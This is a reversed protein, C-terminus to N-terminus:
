RRSNRQGDGIAIGAIGSIDEKGHSSKVVDQYKNCAFDDVSISSYLTSLERKNGTKYATLLRLFLDSDFAIVQDSPLGIAKKSLGSGVYCTDNAISYLVLKVPEDGWSRVIVNPRDNNVM